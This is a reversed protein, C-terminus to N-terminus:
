SLDAFEDLRVELGKNKMERKREKMGQLFNEDSRRRWLKSFNLVELELLDCPGIIQEGYCIKLDKGSRIAVYFQLIDNEYSFFIVTNRNTAGLMYGSGQRMRYEM